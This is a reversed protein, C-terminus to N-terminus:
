DAPRNTDTHLTEGTHSTQVQARSTGVSGALTAAVSEVRIQSNRPELTSLAGVIRVFRTTKRLGLRISSCYKCCPVAVVWGHVTSVLSRPPQLVSPATVQRGLFLVRDQWQKVDARLRHIM